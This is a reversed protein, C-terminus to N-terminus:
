SVCRPTLTQIESFSMIADGTAQMVDAQTLCLDAFAQLSSPLSPPLSPPPSDSLMVNHHLRDDSVEAMVYVNVRVCNPSCYM